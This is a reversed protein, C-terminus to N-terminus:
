SSVRMFYKVKLDVPSVTLLKPHGPCLLHPSPSCSKIDPIKVAESLEGCSKLCPSSQTPSTTSTIQPMARYNHIATKFLDDTHPKDVWWISVKNYGDPSGVPIEVVIHFDTASLSYGRAAMQRRDLRQGNIGMHMELIKVSGDLLPTM